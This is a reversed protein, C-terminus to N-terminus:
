HWWVTVGRFLSHWMSMLLWYDRYKESCITLVEIDILTENCVIYWQCTVAVELVSYDELYDFTLLFVPWQWYFPLDYWIVLILCIRCVPCIYYDLYWYLNYTMLVISCFVAVICHRISTTRYWLNYWWYHIDLNENWDSYWIVKMANGNEDPWSHCTYFLWIIYWRIEIFLLSLLMLCLRILPLWLGLRYPMLWWPLRRPCHTLVSLSHCPWHIIFLWGMM